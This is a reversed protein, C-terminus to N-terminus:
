SKKILNPMSGPTRRHSLATSLDLFGSTGSTILHAYDTEGPQFLTLQDALIQTHWPVDPAGLSSLGTQCNKKFLKKSSKKELNSLKKAESLNTVFFQRFYVTICYINQNNEFHEKNVM